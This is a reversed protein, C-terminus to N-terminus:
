EQKFEKLGDLRKLKIRRLRDRILGDIEEIQKEDLDNISEKIVGFREATPPLVPFNLTGDSKRKDLHSLDSILQQTKEPARVKKIELGIDGGAVQIMVDGYRFITQWIGKRRYSVDQIKEYLAESVIREFFGRQDIDIVRCNTIIFANYYWTILVRFAYVVGLLLPAGFLAVGWYGWRFLPFLFFFPLTLLLFIALIQPWFTLGYHRVVAIM